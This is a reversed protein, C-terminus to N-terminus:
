QPQNACLRQILLDFTFLYPKYNVKLNFNGLKIEEHFKMYNVPLKAFLYQNFDNPAGTKKQTEAYYITETKFSRANDSAGNWMDDGHKGENEKQNKVWEDKSEQSMYNMQKSAFCYAADKMEQFDRCSDFGKCEIGGTTVRRSYREKMEKPWIVNVVLM